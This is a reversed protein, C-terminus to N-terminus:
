AADAPRSGAALGPLDADTGRPARVPRPGPTTITMPPGKRTLRPRRRRVRRRRAPHRRRRHARRGRDRPVALPRSRPRRGARVATWACRRHRRGAVLPARLDLARAATLLEIALVRTLADVSRRLKRAAAWGMSVHDEQMASTPISDVSAPVALRKSRASWRRGPHVARDHARLRRRPRRRPVRAARALPGPRADPRHPARQDRRPRRGRHRPLRARLRGTRRPLQRLVRGPRRALVIPNDIASDLEREAVLEAHASRHRARRRRGAARLAALLRGAGQHRRRRHRRSSRRAPWCGADPQRRSAAQGPHPRLAQLDAAFVRDTGLLAEVSM